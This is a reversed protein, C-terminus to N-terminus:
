RTPMENFKTKDKSKKTKAKAEAAAAAAAAAAAGKKSAAAKKKALSAKRAKIAEPDIAPHRGDGNLEEDGEEAHHGNISASNPSDSAPVDGKREKKAKRKAAKASNSKPAGDATRGAPAELGFEALVADLDELEKKKMEERQKKSLQVVPKPAPGTDQSTAPHSSPAEEEEEAEDDSKPLEIGLEAEIDLHIDQSFGDEESDYDSEPAPEEPQLEVLRMQSGRGSM